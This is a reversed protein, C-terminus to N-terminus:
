AEWVKGRASDRWLEDDHLDRTLADDDVRAAPGDGALCAWARDNGYARVRLQGDAAYVTGSTTPESTDPQVTRWARAVARYVTRWFREIM